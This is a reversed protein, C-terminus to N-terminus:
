DNDAKKKSRKLTVEAEEEEEEFSGDTMWHVAAIHRPKVGEIAQIKEMSMPYVKIESVEDLLEQRKEAYEAFGYDENLWKPQGNEQRINGNDDVECLAKLIMKEAAAIEKRTADTFTINRAIAYALKQDKVALDGLEKVANGAAVIDSNTQTVTEM